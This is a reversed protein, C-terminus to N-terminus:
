PLPTHGNGTTFLCHPLTFNQLKPDEHDLRPHNWFEIMKKKDVSVDKAFNERL